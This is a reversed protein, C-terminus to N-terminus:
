DNSLEKELDFALDFKAEAKARKIQYNLYIKVADSKSVDVLCRKKYLFALATTKKGVLEEDKEFQKIEDKFTALMKELRERDSLLNKLM